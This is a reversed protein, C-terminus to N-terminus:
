QFNRAISTAIQLYADATAPQLRDLSITTGDAVAQGHPVRIVTAPRTIVM